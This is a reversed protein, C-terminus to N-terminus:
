KYYSKTLIDVINVNAAPPPDVPTRRKFFSGPSISNADADFLFFSIASDM